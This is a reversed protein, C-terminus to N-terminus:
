HIHPRIRSLHVSSVCASSGDEPVEGAAACDNVAWRDHVAREVPSGTVSIDNSGSVVFHVCKGQGARVMSTPVGVILALLLPRRDRSDIISGRLQSWSWSHTLNCM